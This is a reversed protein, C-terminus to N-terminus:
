KSLPYGIYYVGIIEGAANKVPEYGTDYKSGLIDVIGYFAEGKKIAAIAPGNPDLPTGVARNGDKIVNTSIRIFGDDKKVFFTATCGYKSKLADVITYDADIKTTGFLLANGDIKPEGLKAAESKIEAMAEKIKAGHESTSPADEARAVTACGMVLCLVFLSLVPRILNRFNKRFM